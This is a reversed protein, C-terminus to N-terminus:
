TPLKDDLISGLKFMKQIVVSYLVTDFAKQYDTLVMLTLDGKKMARIIDDRICLLVTATSHGKCFVAITQKLSQNFKTYDVIQHGVLKEIVKSLVLLVTIPRFFKRRIIRIDKRNRYYKKLLKYTNTKNELTNKASINCTLGAYFFFSKEKLKSVKQM